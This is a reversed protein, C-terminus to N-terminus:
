GCNWFHVEFKASLAAHYFMFCDQDIGCRNRIQVSYMYGSFAKLFVEDLGVTAGNPVFQRSKTM